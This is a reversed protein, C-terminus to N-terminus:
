RRLELLDRPHDVVARAGGEVLEERPRFGWTVGVPLMGAATATQMDVASDGVYAVADFSVKLPEAIALAADPDPKLPVGPQAGKVVAFTGPETLGHVIRRALAEVKNSHVALRVGDARLESLLDAVGDYLRTKDLCHRAYDALLRSLCRGITGETRRDAPLAETVLNVM